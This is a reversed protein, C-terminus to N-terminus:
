ENPLWRSIDFLQLLSMDSKDAMYMYNTISILKFFILTSWYDSYEYFKRTVTYVKFSIIKKDSFELIIVSLGSVLDFNQFM